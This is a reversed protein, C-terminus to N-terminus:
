ECLSKTFRPTAMRNSKNSVKDTPIFCRQLRATAVPPFTALSVSLSLREPDIRPNLAEFGAIPPIVGKELVLITKVLAAIGSAGELHGINSKLAGVYLPAKGVRQDRFADGIAQAEIPDGVPTGTGHTEVYGTSGMELHADRYMRQILLRQADGNPQTIGPTRGDQNCDSARIVSRITDGDRVADSYRKLIVTAFGEGRAYGNARHDFSFCQADKSLFNM